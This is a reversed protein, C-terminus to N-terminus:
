GFVAYNINEAVPGIYYKMCYLSIIKKHGISIHAYVPYFTIVWVLSSLCARLTVIVVNVYNDLLLIFIMKSETYFNDKRNSPILSLDCKQWQGGDKDQGIEHSCLPFYFRLLYIAWFFYFIYLTMCISFGNEWEVISLIAVWGLEWKKFYILKNWTIKKKKNLLLSWRKVM